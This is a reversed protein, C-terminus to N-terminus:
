YKYQFVNVKSIMGQRIVLHLDSLKPRLFILKPFNYKHVACHVPDIEVAAVVEFGAQEFGLSMGGAGAFLDIAIPRGASKTM